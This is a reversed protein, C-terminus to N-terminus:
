DNLQSRGSMPRPRGGQPRGGGCLKLNGSTSFSLRRWSGCRRGSGDMGGWLVVVAVLAVVVAARWLWRWRDGTRKFHVIREDM